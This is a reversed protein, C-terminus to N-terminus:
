PYYALKRTTITRRWDSDSRFRQFAHREIWNGREDCIYEYVRVSSASNDWENFSWVRRKRGEGDYEYTYRGDGLPKGDAKLGYTEKIRGESDYSSLWRENVAGDRGFYKSDSRLLKLGAYEFTKQRQLQDEGVYATFSVLLDEEYVSVTRGTVKGSPARNVWITQARKLPNEVSSIQICRDTGDLETTLVLKGSDDYTFYEARQVNMAGTYLIKKLVQGAPSFEVDYNDYNALDEIRSSCPSRQELKTVRGKVEYYENM